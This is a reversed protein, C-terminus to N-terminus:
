QLFEFLLVEDGFSVGWKRQILFHTMGCAVPKMGGRLNYILRRKGVEDNEM